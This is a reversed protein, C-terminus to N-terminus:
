LGFTLPEFGRGTVLALDIPNALFQQGRKFKPAFSEFQKEHKMGKSFAASVHQLAEGDFIERAKHNVVWPNRTYNEVV